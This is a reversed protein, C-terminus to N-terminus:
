PNLKKMTNETDDILAEAYAVPVYGLCIQFPANSSQYTTDNSINKIIEYGNDIRKPFSDKMEADAEEYSGFEKGNVYYAFYGNSAEKLRMEFEYKTNFKGNEYQLYKVSDSAEDVVLYTTKGDVATEIWRSLDQNHSLLTAPLVNVAKADEWAWVECASGYENSTDQCYNKMAM